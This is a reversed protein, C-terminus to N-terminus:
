HLDKEIMEKPTAQRSNEKQLRAKLRAEQGTILDYIKVSPQPDAQSEKVFEIFSSKQERTMQTRNLIFELIKLLLPFILGWNM